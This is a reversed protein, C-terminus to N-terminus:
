KKFNRLINLILFDRVKFLYLPERRLGPIDLYALLKLGLEAELSVVSALLAKLIFFIPYSKAM